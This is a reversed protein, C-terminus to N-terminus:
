NIERQNDNAGGEKILSDKMSGINIEPIDEM